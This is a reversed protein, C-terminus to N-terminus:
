GEKLGQVNGSLSYNLAFSEFEDLDYSTKKKDTNKSKGYNKSKFMEDSRKVQEATTIHNKSWDMFIGNIYGFSLKTKADMGMKREFKESFEANVDFNVSDIFEDLKPEFADSIAKSLILYNDM